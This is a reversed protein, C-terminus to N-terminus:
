NLLTGVNVLQGDAVAQFAISLDHETTTEIEVAGGVNAMRRPVEERTANIFM